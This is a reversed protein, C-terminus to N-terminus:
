ASLSSSVHYGGGIMKLLDKRMAVKFEFTLERKAGIVSKKNIHVVLICGDLRNVFGRLAFLGEPIKGFVRKGSTFHRCIKNTFTETKVKDGKGHQAVIAGIARAGELLEDFVIRFIMVEVEGLIVSLKEFGNDEKVHKAIVGIALTPVYEKFLIGVFEEGYIMPDTEVLLM